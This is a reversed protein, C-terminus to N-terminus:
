GRRQDKRPLAQRSLPQVQFARPAARGGDSDSRLERLEVRQGEGTLVNGRDVPEHLQRTYPLRYARPEAARPRYGLLGPHPRPLVWLYIADPEDVLGNVFVARAPLPQTTAWGDFSDIADWVAFTFTCTGVIVPLKLWWAGRSGVVFWLLLGTLIAFGLALVPIM